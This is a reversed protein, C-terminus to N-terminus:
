ENLINGQGLESMKQWVNMDTTQPNRYDSFHVWLLPGNIQFIHNLNQWNQAVNRLWFQSPLERSMRPARAQVQHVGKKNEELISMM